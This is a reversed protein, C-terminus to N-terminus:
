YFSIQLLRRFWTSSFESISLYFSISIKWIDGERL